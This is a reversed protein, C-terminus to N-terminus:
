GIYGIHSERIAYVLSVQKKMRLKMADAKYITFSLPAVNVTINHDADAKLEAEGRLAVYRGSTAEFTVTKAEPASNFLLLYESGEEPDTRSFAYIGAEDSAYRSKHDGRRLAKHSHYLEAYERFAQYLPHGSDFNNDATTKDTGLLDYLNYRAVESPMMDERSGEYLGSGTFGQEAGYYVIPIGRAFFMFAHALKVRQIKEAESAHTLDRNVYYGFRGDDHNGIYTM